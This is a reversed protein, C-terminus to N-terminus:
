DPRHDPPPASLTPRVPPLRAIEVRGPHRPDHRHHRRRKKPKKAKRFVLVWIMVAGTVLLVAGGIILYEILTLVALSSGLLPPFGAALTVFCTASM